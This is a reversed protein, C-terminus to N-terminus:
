MRRRLISMTFKGISFHHYASGFTILQFPGFSVGPNYPDSFWSFGRWWRAYNNYGYSFRIGRGWRSGRKVGNHEFVDTTFLVSHNNGKLSLNVVYLM